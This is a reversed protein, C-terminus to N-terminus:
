DQQTSEVALAPALTAAVKVRKAMVSRANASMYGTIEFQQISEIILGLDAKFFERANSVRCDSLYDHIEAEILAPAQVEAYYEISFEEPVGTAASLEACRQSPSRSTLGIKYIGQSLSKNSLVYIFGIPMRNKGGDLSLPQGEPLSRLPPM